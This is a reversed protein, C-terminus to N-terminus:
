EECSFRFLSKECYLEGAELRTSPFESRNPTDPLYMPALVVGDYDHYHKGSQSRATGASLTNGSYLRIAPYSTLIDVRRGSTKSRLTAAETLIHRKWNRILLHHDYGDLQDIRNFDSDTAAHLSRFQRFDLPTDTVSLLHGTPLLKANLEVCEDAHIQLEHALASGATEGDLNLALTTSLNLHTTADAAARYTIELTDEEDFDFIVQVYLNGPWGQEGDPSAIEMVIRNEEVRSEWLRQSLGCTGGDRHHRGANAELRFEQKDLVFASHGITGAYRGLLNGLHEGGSAYDMPNAYGLLVNARKGTRDPLHIATISAGLNTLEVENGRSNRMRYRIVGEGEPTM